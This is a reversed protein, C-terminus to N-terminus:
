NADYNVCDEAFMNKKESMKINNYTYPNLMLKALLKCSLLAPGAHYM